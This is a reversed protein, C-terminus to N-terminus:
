ADSKRFLGTCGFAGHFAFNESLGDHVGSYVGFVAYAEMRDPGVRAWYTSYAPDNPDSNRWDNYDHFLVFGGPAVVQDMLQAADRVASYTHAHDVFVFDAVRGDDIFNKLFETADMLHFKVRQSGPVRAVSAQAFVNTKADLDVTDILAGSGANEIANASISCSLGFSTGIDLVYGQTFYALEYIKLADARRLSGYVDRVDYQSDDNPESGIKPRPRIGVIDSKESRAPCQSWWKHDENIFDGAFDHTKKYEPIHHGLQDPGIFSGNNAFIKEM